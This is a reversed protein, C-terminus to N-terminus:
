EATKGLSQLRRIGAVDLRMGEWDALFEAGLKNLYFDRAPTNWKLVVWDM